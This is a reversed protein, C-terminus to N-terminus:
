EAAIVVTESMGPMAQKAPPVTPNSPYAAGDWSLIARGDALGGGGVGVVIDAWGGTRTEAIGIPTRSVTTRMIQRYADGDPTFVLTLCGGSGCVDRGAVHVIVEDRGDANLDIRAQQIDMGASSYETLDPGSEQATACASLSVVGASIMVGRVWVKM